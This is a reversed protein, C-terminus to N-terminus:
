SLFNRRTKSFVVVLKQTRMQTLISGCWAPFPCRVYFQRSSHRDGRRKSSLLARRTPRSSSSSASVPARASKKIKYVVVVKLFFFLSSFRVRIMARSSTKTRDKARTHNSRQSTKRCHQLFSSSFRIILLPSSSSLFM